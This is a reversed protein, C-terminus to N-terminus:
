DTNCRAGSQQAPGDWRAKLSISQIYRALALSSSGDCGWSSSNHTTRCPRQGPVLPGHAIHQTTPRPTMGVGDAKERSTPGTQISAVSLRVLYNANVWIKSATQIPALLKAARVAKVEGTWDSVLLNTPRPRRFPVGINQSGMCQCPAHLGLGFM